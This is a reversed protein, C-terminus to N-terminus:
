VGKASAGSATSTDARQDNTSQGNDVFVPLRVTFTTGEGEVSEVSVSGGHALAARKVMALGLGTGPITSVNKGRHFSEFLRELDEKGIGIGRDRIEVVLDRGEARARVDIPGGAPSYKVANSLLNSLVHAALKEDMEAAPLEDAIDVRFDHRMTTTAVADISERLFRGVDLPAPKCELKGADSKGIVLVADMLDRMTTVATKIRAYHDSRKSPQWKEGYAELLETSSLIM